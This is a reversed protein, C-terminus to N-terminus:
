KKGGTRKTAAKQAPTDKPAAPKGAPAGPADQADQAPATVYEAVGVRALEEADRDTVDLIEGKKAGFRGVVFTTLARVKM